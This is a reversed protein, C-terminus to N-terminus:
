DKKVGEGVQNQTNIYNFVSTSSTGYTRDFDQRQKKADIPFLTHYEYEASLFGM